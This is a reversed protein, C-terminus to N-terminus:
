AHRWHKKDRIFLMTWLVQGTVIIWSKILQFQWAWVSTWIHTFYYSFPFRAYIMTPLLLTTKRVLIYIVHHCMFVCFSILWRNLNLFWDLFALRYLCVWILLFYWIFFVSFLIINPEFYKKLFLLFLILPDFSISITHIFVSLTMQTSM